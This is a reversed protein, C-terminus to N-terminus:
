AKDETASAVDGLSIQTTEVATQCEQEGQQLGTCPVFKKNFNSDGNMINLAGALYVPWAIFEFGEPMPRGVHTEQAKVMEQFDSRMNEYNDPGLFTKYIELTNQEESM